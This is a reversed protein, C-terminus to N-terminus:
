PNRRAASTRPGDGVRSVIEGSRVTATTVADPVSRCASSRRGAPRGHRGVTTRGGASCRGTGTRRDADHRPASARRGGPLDLGVVRHGCRTMVRRPPSSRATDEGGRCPRMGLGRRHPPPCPPSCELDPVRARGPLVSVASRAVSSFDHDITHHCPPFRRTLTTDHPQRGRGAECALARRVLGRGGTRREPATGAARRRPVRRDRRGRVAARGSEWVGGGDRRGRRDGRGTNGM